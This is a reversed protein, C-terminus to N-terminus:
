RLTRHVRRALAVCAALAEGIRAGTALMWDVLDPLDHGVARESSRFLAVLQETESVTLARPAKSATSRLRTGSERLPNAPM